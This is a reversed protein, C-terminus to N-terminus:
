VVVGSVRTCFLYEDVKFDEMVSAVYGFQGAVLGSGAFLGGVKDSANLNGSDTLKQFGLLFTVTISVGLKPHTKLILASDYTKHVVDEASLIEWLQKPENIPM